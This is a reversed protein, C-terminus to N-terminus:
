IVEKEVTIANRLLVFAFTKSTSHFDNSLSLSGFLYEFGNKENTAMTTFILVM